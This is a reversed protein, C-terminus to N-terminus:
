KYPSKAPSKRKSKDGYIKDLLEDERELLPLM